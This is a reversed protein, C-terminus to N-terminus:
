GTTQPHSKKWLHNVTSNHHEFDKRVGSSIELSRKQRTSLVLDIPNKCGKRTRLVDEVLVRLEELLLLPQYHNLHRFFKATDIVSLGCPTVLTVVTPTRFMTEGASHTHEM